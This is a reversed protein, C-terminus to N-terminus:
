RTELDIGEEVWRREYDMPRYKFVFSGREDLRVPYLKGHFYHYPNGPSRLNNWIRYGIMRPTVVTRMANDMKTIAVMDERALKQVGLWTGDGDEGFVDWFTLEGCEGTRHYKLRLEKLHYSLQMRSWNELGRNDPFDDPMGCCSGSMNLEKFDPDSCAFLMKHSQCFKFIRKVFREKLDRNLRYLGGREGPSLKKFYQL